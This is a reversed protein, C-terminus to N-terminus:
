PLDPRLRVSVVLDAAARGRELSLYRVSLVRGRDPRRPVIPRARARSQPAARRSRDRGRGVAAALLLPVRDPHPTPRTDGRHSLEAARRGVAQPLPGDPLADDLGGADHVADVLRATGAVTPHPGM